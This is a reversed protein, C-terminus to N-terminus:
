CGLLPYSCIGIPTIPQLLGYVKHTSAIQPVCLEEILLILTEM